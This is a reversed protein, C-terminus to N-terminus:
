AKKKLEVSGDDKVILHYEEWMNFQNCWQDRPIIIKIAHKYLLPKPQQPFTNPPQPPSPVPIRYGFSIETYMNAVPDFDAKVEIVVVDISFTM